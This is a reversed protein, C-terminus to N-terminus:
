SSVQGRKGYWTYTPLGSRNVGLRQAEKQSMLGAEGVM